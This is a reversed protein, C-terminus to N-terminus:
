ESRRDDIPKAIFVNNTNFDRFNLHAQQRDNQQGTHGDRPENNAIKPSNLFEINTSSHLLPLFNLIIRRPIYYLTFYDTNAQSIHMLIAFYTINM